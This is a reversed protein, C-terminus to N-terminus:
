GPVVKVIKLTDDGMSCLWFAHSIKSNQYTYGFNFEAEPIHLRPGLISTDGTTDGPDITDNGSPPDDTSGSPNNESCAFFIVLSFILFILIPAIRNLRDM